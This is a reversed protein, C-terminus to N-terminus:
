FFNLRERTVALFNKMQSRTTAPEALLKGVLNFLPYHRPDFLRHSHVMKLTHVGEGQLASTEGRVLLRGLDHHHSGKSTATAILDGLGALRQAAGASGGLGTVIRELEAMTEVALYGRMNDGLALEDAVGFLIAYVNKLVAAWSIGEIDTTHDLYLSTGAFLDLLRAYTGANATGAQAFAPRGARIEESIMPGYLVAIPAKPGLALALARAATRGEDDLGKAISICLCDLRLHKQLRTALDFHPSAPLCFFIVDQRGTASELDVAPIARPHREWITLTHRSQLLHEMARGIEGHGLILIKSTIRSM